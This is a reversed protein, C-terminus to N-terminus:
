PATAAAPPWTRATPSALSKVKGKHGEFRGVEAGTAVDWMRRLNGATDAVLLKGDPSFALGEVWNDGVQFSARQKGTAADWLRVTNDVGGTAM